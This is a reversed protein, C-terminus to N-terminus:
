HFEFDVGKMGREVCRVGMGVNCQYSSFDYFM